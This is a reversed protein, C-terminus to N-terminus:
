KEVQEVQAQAPDYQGNVTWNPEGTGIGVLLLIIGLVTAVIRVFGYGFKYDDDHAMLSKFMEQKWPFEFLGVTLLVVAAATFGPHSVGMALVPFGYVFCILGVLSAFLKIWMRITAHGGHEDPHPAWGILEWFRTGLGVMLLAIGLIFMTM